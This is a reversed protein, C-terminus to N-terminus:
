QTTHVPTVGSQAAEPAIVPSKQRLEQMNKLIERMAAEPIKVRPGPGVALSPSKWHELLYGLDALFYHLEHLAPFADYTGGQRGLVAIGKAEQLLKATAEKLVVEVDADFEIQGKFVRLRWQNLTRRMEACYQVFDTMAQPFTEHHTAQHTKQMAAELGAAFQRANELENTDSM